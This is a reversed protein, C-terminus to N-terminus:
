PTNHAKVKALRKETLKISEPNQDIGIYHRDLRKAVVCTTGSGLYPDLVVQGEKSSAQIIRKLLKAPKQTPYGVREKEKAIDIDTWCTEIRSGKDENAYERDTFEPRGPSSDRRRHRYRRGKSDRYPFMEREQKITLPRFQPTFNHEAKAYFLIHDCNNKFSHKISDFVATSKYAWIIENRFAPKGFIQNLIFRYTYNTRWDMHWYIAGSPKLIRHLEEIVPIHTSFYSKEKPTLQHPLWQWETKEFILNQTKEIDANDSYEYFDRNTNFPPDCYILDVTETPIERLAILNNKCILTNTQM